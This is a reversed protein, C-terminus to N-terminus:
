RCYRSLQFLQAFVFLYFDNLISLSFHLLYEIVPELIPYALVCKTVHFYSFCALLNNVFVGVWLKLKAMRGEIFDEEFRGSAQKDPLRPIAIIPYREVLRTYLWDFQKYRRQVTM